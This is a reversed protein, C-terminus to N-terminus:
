SLCQTLIQIILFLIMLSKLSVVAWFWFPQIKRSYEKSFGPAQAAYHANGNKFDYFLWIGFVVIMLSLGLIFEM